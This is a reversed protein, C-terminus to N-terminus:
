VELISTSSAFISASSTLSSFYSDEIELSIGLMLSEDDLSLTISSGYEPSTPLGIFFYSGLGSELDSSSQESASWTGSRM